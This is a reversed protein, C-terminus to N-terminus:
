NYEVIRGNSDYIKIVMEQQSLPRNSDFEGDLCYIVQFENAKTEKVPFFLFLLLICAAASTAYIIYHKIKINFRRTPIAPAVFEPIVVPFNSWNNMKNKLHNAWTRQEEIRQACLSCSAVHKEISETEQANTERDIYRQILENNICKM